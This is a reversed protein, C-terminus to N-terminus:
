LLRRRQSYCSGPEKPAYRARTNTVPAAAIGRQTLLCRFKELKFLIGNNLSHFPISFFYNKWYLHFSSIAAPKYIHLVTCYLVQRGRRIARWQLSGGTSHLNSRVVLDRGSCCRSAVRHETFRVCGCDVHYPMAHFCLMPSMIIWWVQKYTALNGRGMHLKGWWNDASPRGLFCKFRRYSM